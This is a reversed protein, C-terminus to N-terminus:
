LSLIDNVEHVEHAVIGHSQAVVLEVVACVLHEFEGGHEFCGDGAGVEDVQARAFQHVAGVDDLLEAVALHREDAHECWRCLEGVGVREGVGDAALKDVVQLVAANIFEHLLSGVVCASGAGVVHYYEGVKAFRLLLVDHRVGYGKDLLRVADIGHEVAVLVGGHGAFPDIVALAFGHQADFRTRLHFVHTLEDNRGVAFQQWFEHRGFVHAVSVGGNGCPHVLNGLFHVFAHTLDDCM